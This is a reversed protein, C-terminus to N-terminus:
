SDFLPIWNEQKTRWVQIGLFNAVSPYVRTPVLLPSVLRVARVVDCTLPAVRADKVRVSGGTVPDDQIAKALNELTRSTNKVTTRHIAICLTSAISAGENSGDGIPM